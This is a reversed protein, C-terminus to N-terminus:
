SALICAGAFLVGFAVFAFGMSVQWAEVYGGFPYNEGVLYPGTSPKWQLIWVIGGLVFMIGSLCLLKWGLALPRFAKSDSNIRVGGGIATLIVAIGFVLLLEM